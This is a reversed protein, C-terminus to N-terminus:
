YNETKIKDYWFYISINVADIMYMYSYKAETNLIIKSSFFDGLYPFQDFLPFIIWGFSYLM